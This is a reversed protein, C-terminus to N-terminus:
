PAAPLASAGAGPADPQCRGRVPGAAGGGPGVGPAPGSSHGVVPGGARQTVPPTNANPGTSLATLGVSNKVM